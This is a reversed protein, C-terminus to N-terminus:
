EVINAPWSDYVLEDALGLTSEPLDEIMCACVPWRNKEEVLDVAEVRLATVPVM